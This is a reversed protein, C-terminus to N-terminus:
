DPLWDVVLDVAEPIPHCGDSAVEVEVVDTDHGSATGSVILAGSRELCCGYTGDGLDECAVASDAALSECTIVPSELAEGSAGSITAFVGYILADDSCESNLTLTVAETQVHCADSGVEVTTEAPSYGDADAYITFTGAQEEGCSFTGDGWSQCEREEEHDVSYTVLADPRPSGGEDQITVTVSWRSETTCTVHTCALLLPLLLTM